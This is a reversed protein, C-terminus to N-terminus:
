NSSEDETAKARKQAPEAVTEIPDEAQRKQGKKRPQVINVPRSDETPASESTANGSSSQIQPATFSYRLPGKSPDPLDKVDEPNVPVFKEDLSFIRSDIEAVSSELVEIAVDKPSVARIKTIEEKLLQRARELAERAAASDSKEEHVSSLMLLVQAQARREKASAAFQLAKEFEVKADDIKEDEWAVNGLSFHVDSLELTRDSQTSYLIRAIELVSWALELDNMNAGEGEEGVPAAEGGQAEEEEGGEEGDEEGEASEEDEAGEAANAAGNAGDKTEEEEEEPKKSSDSPAHAGNSAQIDAEKDADITEAEEDEEDGEGEGLEEDLDGDENGDDDGRVMGAMLQDLLEETVSPIDGQMAQARKAVEAEAKDGFEGTSQTYHYLLATGYLYMLNAVLPDFGRALVAERDNIDPCALELARSYTEAAAEWKDAREEEIGQARLERVENEPYPQASAPVL